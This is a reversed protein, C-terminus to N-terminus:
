EHENVTTLKCLFHDASLKGRIALGSDPSLHRFMDSHGLFTKTMSLKTRESGVDGTSFREGSLPGYNSRASAILHISRVAPRLSFIAVNNSRARHNTFMACRWSDYCKGHPTYGHATDARHTFHIM